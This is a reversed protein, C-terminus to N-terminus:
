KPTGDFIIANGKYRQKFDRVRDPTFAFRVCHPQMTHDGNVITLDGEQFARIIVALGTPSIDHWHDDCRIRM